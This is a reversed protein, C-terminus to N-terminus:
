SMFATILKMNRDFVYYSFFEGVKEYNWAVYREGGVRLVYAARAGSATDSQAIALAAAVAGCVIPDTEFAVEATDRLSPLRLTQRLAASGSDGSTVLEIVYSRFEAAAGRPAVCATRSASAALAPASLVPASRGCSVAVALALM